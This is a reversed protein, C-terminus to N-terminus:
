LNERNELLAVGYQLADEAIKRDEGDSSELNHEVLEIFRAVIPRDLYSDPSIGVLRSHSKDSIRLSFFHQGLDEELQELNSPDALLESGRIGKLIVMMALNGDAYRLIRERLEALSAIGAMDVEDRDGRRLGVTRPEIKVGGADSISVLLVQGADKQKWNLWEPAGSYWAVVGKDFCPWATHWHGLAIYDMGSSAIEEATFVHDDAAVKEPIFFSGHAVAVHYRSSTMRGIGELPSVSSRQSLLPKGYVTLDLDPYDRYGVGDGAFITLNPCRGKFDFKHYVSSSDLCDHNGPILCVPINNGELLKFQEVVLDINRQPQKNSDFLDGAILFIDIKEDVAMSIANKFTEEVQRRQSDGKSGLSPFRAGMHIDATHLMKLM